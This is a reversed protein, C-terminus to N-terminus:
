AAEAERVACAVQAADTAGLIQTRVQGDVAVLTVPPSVADTLRSALKSSPDFVSPYPVGFEKEFALANTKSDQVNVGLFRTGPLSEAAAVLEAAEERCPACWSGWVNIVATGETLDDLHFPTGETTEGTYDPITRDVQSASAGCASVRAADGCATLLLALVIAASLFSRCM